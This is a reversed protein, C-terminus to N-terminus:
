RRSFEPMLDRYYLPVHQRQLNYNEREKISVNDFFVRWLSQFEEEKESLVPVNDQTVDDHLEIRGDIHTLLLSRLSDYIMWNDSPLRRKFHASLWSLINAKPKIESLLTGDDLEKFRVFEIMRMSETGVRKAAKHVSVVEDIELRDMFNIDAYLGILCKVIELYKPDSDLLYARMLLHANKKLYGVARKALESDTIVSHEEDFLVQQFDGCVVRDPETKSKFASVAVCLLGEFSGDFIYTKM